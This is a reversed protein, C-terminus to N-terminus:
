DPDLQKDTQNNIELMNIPLQSLGARKYKYRMFNSISEEHNSILIQRDQFEVRFLDCLSAVNIEDMSQVPDDILVFSNSAYVKNLTLFFAMGLAAVQGSSMSLIADHESHEVTSFKLIKGDGSTLFLGLGRQYNQILRGSYIHFLLEIDAIMKKTYQEVTSEIIKRSSVIKKKIQIGINIKKSLNEITIKNEQYKKNKFQNQQNLLYSRKNELDEATINMMDDENTFTSSIIDNWNSPLVDTESKKNQEIKEKASDLLNNTALESNDYITTPFIQYEALEKIVGNLSDFKVLVSNLKKYLPENFEFGLLKKKTQLITKKAEMELSILNNIKELDKGYGDIKEAVLEIALQAAEELLKKTEWPINCFPCNLENDCEKYQKLLEKKAELLKLRKQSESDSLLKKQERNRILVELNKNDFDVVLKTIDNKTIENASIKLISINKDLQNLAKYTSSYIEYKDIFSGISLVLKIENEKALLSCLKKNDRRIKLEAQNICIKSVDNVDIILKDLAEQDSTTIPNQSDWKPIKTSSSLRKYVSEISSDSIQSNLSDLEARLEILKDTHKKGIYDDNIQSELSKFFQIQESLKDTNILHEIGKKRENANTSHLYRNEGQELYNLLSFNKLFNSGLFNDLLSDPITNSFDESEFCDLQYLKFISFNDPANNEQRHLDSTLAIRALYLPEESDGSTLEARVVLNGHKQKNWYLNEEFNTKKKGKAITNNNREIVRQIRGTFLLEVADFISTKGFGNPGDLTILASCKLDFYAKEFPKFNEIQIRAIKWKKM